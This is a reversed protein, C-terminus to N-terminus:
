LQIWPHGWQLGGFTKEPVRNRLDGPHETTIGSPEIVPHVPLRLSDAIAPRVVVVVLHIVRRPTPRVTDHGVPVVQLPIKGSQWDDVLEWFKMTKRNPSDTTPPACKAACRRRCALSRWDWIVPLGTM